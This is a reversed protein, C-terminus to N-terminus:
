FTYKITQLPNVSFGDTVIYIQIKEEGVIKKIKWKWIYEKINSVDLVYKLIGKEDIIAINNLDNLEEELEKETPTHITSISEELVNIKRYNKIFNTYPIILTLAFRIQFSKDTGNYMSIQQTMTGDNNIKYAIEFFNGGVYNLKRILTHSNDDSQHIIQKSDPTLLEWDPDQYMLVGWKESEVSLWDKEPHYFEAKDEM